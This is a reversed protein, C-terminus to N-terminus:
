VHWAFMGWQAVVLAGWMSSLCLTDGEVQVTLVMMLGSYFEVGPRWGGESLCFGELHVPLLCEEGTSGKRGGLWWEAWVEGAIQSFDPGLLAM